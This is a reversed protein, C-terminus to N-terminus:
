SDEMKRGYRTETVGNKYNPILTDLLNSIAGLLNKIERSPIIRSIFGLIKSASNEAPARSVGAALDTLSLNANTENSIGFTLKLDDNILNGTFNSNESV